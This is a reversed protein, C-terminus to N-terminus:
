NARNILMEIFDVLVEADSKSREILMIEEVACSMDPRMDMEGDEASILEM